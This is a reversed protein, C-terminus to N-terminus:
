RLLTQIYVPKVFAANHVAASYYRLAFPPKKQQQTPSLTFARKDTGAIAFAMSGGSYTPVTACYADVTASVRGLGRFAHPLVKRQVFPIGAQTVIVGGPALIARCDRYFEDSFLVEGPGDPDTADILIVDFPRGERAERVYAAADGLIIEARPDDFAGASLSPLFKKAVDIVAGDLEALVARTVSPHKLVERLTGGDGGGIILVSAPAGHAFLPVHVLMEHYIFEDATTTQIVGDLMLVRGFLPNDFVVIDQYVSRGQYLVTEAKLATRFTGAFDENQWNESM